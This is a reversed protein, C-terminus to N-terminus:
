AADAAFTDEGDEEPNTIAVVEVQPRQGRRAGRRPAPPTWEYPDGVINAYNNKNPELRAEFPKDILRGMQQVFDYDKIITMITEGDDDVMIQGDEDTKPTQIEKYQLEFEPDIARALKYANALDSTLSATVWHTVKHGAWGNDQGYGGADVIELALMCRTRMGKGQYGPYEGCRQVGKFVLPYNGPPPCEHDFQEQQVRLSTVMRQQHAQQYNNM